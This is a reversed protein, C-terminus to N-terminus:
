FTSLRRHDHTPLILGTFTAHYHYFKVSVINNWHL